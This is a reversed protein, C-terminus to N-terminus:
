VIANLLSKQTSRAAKLTLASAKYTIAADGLGLAAQTLDASRAGTVRNAANHLGQSAKAVGGIAASLALSSM